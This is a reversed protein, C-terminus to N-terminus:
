FLGLGVALLFEHHQYVGVLHAEAVHVPYEVEGHFGFHVIEEDAAAEDDVVGEVLAQQGDFFAAVNGHYEEGAARELEAILGVGNKEEREDTAAVRIQEDAVVDDCCRVELETGEFDHGGPVHEHVATGRSGHQVHAVGAGNGGVFVVDGYAGGHGPFHEAQAEHVHVGTAACLHGDWRMDDFRHATREADGEDDAAADAGWFQGGDVYFGPGVDDHDTIGDFFVGSQDFFHCRRHMAFLDVM